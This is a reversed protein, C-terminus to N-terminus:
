DIDSHLEESDGYQELKRYLTKRDLGLVKAAMTRNGGTARLVHLIYRKEIESMPILEAPDNSEVFVQASHYKQIKEPLDEVGIKDFRTLAVAHEICNRLERVNGPWSYYLLKEAVADSIGQVDKGSLRAYHNVFYRALLLIDNGRLRLPPMEIKIVNIRYFLDERFKGEEVFSELDQNTAAIIRANFPIEENGGVPRVKREELARLLKAQVTVPMESIEDLFLTGKDAEVFLGKRSSQADTFAGKVHGFLESELLNDPVASCNIAVFPGRKHSSRKHLSRAVLEKGTGSEGTILVSADSDSIRDLLAYIKKMSNSTGILEDFKQSEEMAESLVKVKEMLARHKVARDLTIALQDIDIPKNVFDYAGARLASVATDMSGFATIVVVPIDPRNASVRQCLEIGGGGPMKLDTLLVDYDAHGLESFAEDASTKWIVSFGSQTLGDELMMCMDRDDDAILIKGKM